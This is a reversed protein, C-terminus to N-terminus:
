DKFSSSFRNNKMGRKQLAENGEYEILSEIYAADVRM